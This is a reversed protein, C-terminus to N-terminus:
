SMVDDSWLPLEMSVSCEEQAKAKRTGVSRQRELRLAQGSCFILM